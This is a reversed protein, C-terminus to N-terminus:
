AGGDVLDLTEPAFLDDVRIHSVAIGQDQAYRVMTELETRNAQAGYPWWADSFLREASAVEDALWPVMVASTGSFRLRERAASKAECFAEFLSAAIWPEAEYVDRRVVMLHMIPFFGTREYYDTEVTRYDPFLRKVRPEHAGFVDPVHPALLADIAGDLLLQNLTTGPPAQEVPVDAPIAVPARESSGPTEQGGFVWTMESPLVGYDDKLFGRTWLNSTLQYQMTGVRRGRLDEPREIGAAAHVFIFAHRFMRSPFVPLAVLGDDGRSRLNLYTAASFEGVQFERDRAMRSFLEGPGMNVVELEIGHPRVTGIELARTRDYSDCALTLRLATM